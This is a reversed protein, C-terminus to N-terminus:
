RIGTRMICESARRTLNSITSLRKPRNPGYLVNFPHLRERKARSYYAADYTLRMMLWVLRLRLKKLEDLGSFRESEKEEEALVEEVPYIEKLDSKIHLDRLSETNWSHSVVNRAKRLRDLDIILDPSMLDFVFALQLRNFFTSFPGYAGFLTSAGGPVYKPVERKFVEKLRDDAYACVLVPLRRVDENVILTQIQELPTADFSEADITAAFKKELHADVARKYNRFLQVGNKEFDSLELAAIDKDWFKAM